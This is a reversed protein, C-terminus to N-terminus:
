GQSDKKLRGMIIEDVYKGNVIVAKRIRGEEVFGFKKYLGLARENGAIVTLDLRELMLWNDAIDIAKAFLRSGIGQGQYDGHVMIALEGRHRLRFKPNITLSLLGLIKESGEPPIVVAVLCISTKDMALSRAGEIFPEYKECPIGLITEQVGNMTRIQYIEDADKAMLSRIMISM